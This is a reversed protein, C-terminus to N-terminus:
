EDDGQSAALIVSIRGKAVGICRAVALQSMGEDVAEVVLEDRQELALDYAKKCDAVHRAAAKLRAERDALVTTAM